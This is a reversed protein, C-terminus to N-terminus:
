TSEISDVQYFQLCIHRTSQLLCICSCIILAAAMYQQLWISNSGECNCSNCGYLSHSCVHTKLIGQQVICFQLVSCCEAQQGAAMLRVAVCQLASCRAAVRQLVSCCMAVCQLVSCCVAVCQLVSCCVAACQL